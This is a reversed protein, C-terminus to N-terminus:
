RSQPKPTPHVKRPYSRPNTGADVVRVTLYEAGAPLAIEEEIVRQEEGPQAAQFNHAIVTDGAVLEYRHLPKKASLESAPVRLRVRGDPAPEMSAAHDELKCAGLALNQEFQSREAFVKHALERGLERPLYKELEKEVDPTERALLGAPVLISLAYPGVGDAREILTMDVGQFEAYLPIQLLAYDGLTEHGKSVDFVEAQLRATFDYTRDSIFWCLPGGLMLWLPIELWLKENHTGSINPDILLRSRVLLDAGVRRAEEQWYQERDAQSMGELRKPDSPLELLTTRVFAHSLEEQIAKSVEKSGLQLHMDDKVRDPPRVPYVPDSPNATLVTTDHIETPILAVHFPLPSGEPVPTASRCAAALALVAALALSRAPRASSSDLKMTVETRM